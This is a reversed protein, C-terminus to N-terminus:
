AAERDVVEAADTAPGGRVEEANKRAASGGWARWNSGAIAGAVTSAVVGAWVRTGLHAAVWLGSGAASCVWGLRRRRGCLWMGAWGVVTAAWALEGSMARLTGGHGPRRVARHTRPRHVEGQSAAARGLPAPSQPAGERRAAEQQEQGHLASAARTPVAASPSAVVEAALTVAGVTLPVAGAVAGLAVLAKM